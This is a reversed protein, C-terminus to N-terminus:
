GEATFPVYENGVIVYDGVYDAGWAGQKESYVLVEKKYHQVGDVIRTKHYTDRGIATPQGPTSSADVPTVRLDGVREIWLQDAGQEDKGVAFIVVGRKVDGYHEFHSAPFTVCWARDVFTCDKTVAVGDANTVRIRCGTIKVGLKESPLGTVGITRASGCPVCVPLFPKDPRAVDCAILYRSIM